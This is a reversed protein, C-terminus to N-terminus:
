AGGKKHVSEGRETIGRAEETKGIRLKIEYAAKAALWTRELGPAHKEGRKKELGM